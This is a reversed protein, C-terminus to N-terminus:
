PDTEPLSAIPDGEVDRDRDRDQYPCHRCGNGCCYGRELLGVVTFVLYGSDPDIYHSEGREVAADHSSQWRRAMDSGM